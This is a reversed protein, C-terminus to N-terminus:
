SEEEQKVSAELLMEKLSDLLMIQTFRSENTVEITDIAVGNVLQEELHSLSPQILPYMTAVSEDLNVIRVANIHDKDVTLELNLTTDNLRIVTSYVGPEYLAAEPAPIGEGSEKHLFLYSIVIVALLAIIALIGTYLLQKRKLVVIKTKAM